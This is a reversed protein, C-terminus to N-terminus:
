NGIFESHYAVYNEHTICHFELNKLFLTLKAKRGLFGRSKIIEEPNKQPPFPKLLRIVTVEFKLIDEAM